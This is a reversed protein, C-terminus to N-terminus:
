IDRVGYKRHQRATVIRNYIQAFAISLAYLILFFEVAGVAGGAVSVAYGPLIEALLGAHVSEAATGRVVLWTTTAFLGLAGTTGIAFGLSPGHLGLIAEPLDGGACATEVLDDIRQLLNRYNIWYISSGLTAGAVFGWFLGLIASRWGLAYGPLFVGLLSVILGSPAGPKAAAALAFLLLGGILGLLTGFIVANIRM